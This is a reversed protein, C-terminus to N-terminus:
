WEIFSSVQTAVAVKIDETCGFATLIGVQTPPYVSSLFLPGGGDGTCIQEDETEPELCFQFQSIHFIEEEFYPCEKYKKNKFLVSIEKVKRPFKTNKFPKGWGIFVGTKDHLKENTQLLCTPLISESNLMLEHKLELIAVDNELTKKKFHEHTIVDIVDVEQHDSESSSDLNHAGILISLKTVNPHGQICHASTLIFKANLVSGSCIPKNDYSVLITQQYFHEDNESNGIVKYDEDPHSHYKEKYVMKCSCTGQEADPRDKLQQIFVGIMSREEPNLPVPKYKNGATVPKFPKPNNDPLTDSPKHIHIVASTENHTELLITSDDSKTFLFVSDNFLKLNYNEDAHHPGIVTLLEAVVGPMTNPLNDQQPKEIGEKLEKVLPAIGTIEVGSKKNKSTSKKLYCKKLMKLTNSMKKPLHNETHNGILAVILNYETIPTIQSTSTFLGEYILGNSDVYLQVWTGIWDQKKRVDEIKNIERVCNIKTTCANGETMFFQFLQANEPKLEPFHVHRNITNKKNRVIKSHDFCDKTTKSFTQIILTFIIILYTSTFSSTSM